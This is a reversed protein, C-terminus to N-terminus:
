ARAPWARHQGGQEALGEGSSRGTSSSSSLSRCTTTIARASTCSGCRASGPRTSTPARRRWGRGGTRPPAGASRALARRDDEDRVAHVLQLLDGVAARHQAVALHDAVSSRVSAVAARSSCSMDARSSTSARSRRARVAVSRTTSRSSPTTSRPAAVRDRDVHVGALDDAHCPELPVALLAEHAREAPRSWGSRPWTSRTPRRRRRRGDARLMCAARARCRRRAARGCSRPCRRAARWGRCSRAAWSRGRRSPPGGRPAGGGRPAEAVVDVQQLDAVARGAFRM